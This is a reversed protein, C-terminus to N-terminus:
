SAERSKVSKHENNSEKTTIMIIEDRGGVNTATKITYSKKNIKVTDSDKFGKFFPVEIEVNNENINVQGDLKKSGIELPMLEWGM